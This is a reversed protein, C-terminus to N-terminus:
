ESPGADAPRGSGGPILMECGPSGNLRWVRRIEFFRILTRIMGPSEKLAHTEILAFVAGQPLDTQVAGDSM